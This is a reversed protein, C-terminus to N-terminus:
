GSLTPIRRARASLVAEPHEPCGRRSIREPWFTVQECTGCIVLNREYDARHDLLDAAFLALVQSSLPMKDTLMVEWQRQGDRTSRRCVRGDYLAAQVFRDDPSPLLMGELASAVKRQAWAVLEATQSQPLFNAPLAAAHPFGYSLVGIEPEHFFLRPFPYRTMLRGPRVLARETWAVLEDLNWGERAGRMFALAAARLTM